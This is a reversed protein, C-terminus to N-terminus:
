GFAVVLAIAALILAILFYPPGSSPPAPNPAGTATGPDDNTIPFM